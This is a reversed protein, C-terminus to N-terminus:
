SDEGVDAANNPRNAVMRPQQRAQDRQEHDHGDAQTAHEDNIRVLRLHQEEKTCIRSRHFRGPQM